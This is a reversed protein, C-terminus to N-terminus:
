ALIQTRSWHGTDHASHQDLRAGAAAPWGTCTPILPMVPKRAPRCAYAVTCTAGTHGQAGGPARDPGASPPQGGCPEWPGGESPTPQDVVSIDVWTRGRGAVRYACTRLGLGVGRSVRKVIVGGWGM